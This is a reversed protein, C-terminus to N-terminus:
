EKHAVYKMIKENMCFTTTNNNANSNLCTDFYHKIKKKENGFLTNEENSNAVTKGHHSPKTKKKTEKLFASTM